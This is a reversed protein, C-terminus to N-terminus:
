MFTNQEHMYTKSTTKREDPKIPWDLILGIKCNRRLM